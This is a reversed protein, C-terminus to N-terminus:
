ATVATYSKINSNRLHGCSPLHFRTGRSTAVHIVEPDRRARLREFAARAQRTEERAERLAREFEREQTCKEALLEQLETCCRTYEEMFLREDKAMGLNAQIAREATAEPETDVETQADQERSRARRFVLGLSWKLLRFAGYPLGLFIMAVVLCVTCTVVVEIVTEASVEPGTTLAALGLGQVGNVQALMILLPVLTKINHVRAGTSKFDKIAQSLTRKQDAAEKEEQGYPEGGVGLANMTFLLERIRAGGLPKTGRDAPNIAGLIASIELERAKVAGQIWLWGASLHRVRGCGLRQGIATASASDSRANLVVEVESKTLYELCHRLYLGECAGGLMAIFESEASTFSCPAGAGEPGSAGPGIQM